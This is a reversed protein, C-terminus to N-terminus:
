LLLLERRLPSIDGATNRFSSLSYPEIVGDAEIFRLLQSGIVQSAGTHTPFRCHLEEIRILADSILVRIMSGSTTYQIELSTVTSFYFEECKSILLQPIDDSM